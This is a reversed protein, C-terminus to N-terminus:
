VRFWSGGSGEAQEGGESKRKEKIRIAAFVKCGVELRFARGEVRILFM